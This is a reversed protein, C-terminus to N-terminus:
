LADWGLFEKHLLDFLKQNYPQYFSRLFSRTSPLMDQKKGGVNLVEQPLNQVRVGLFKLTEVQTVSLLISFYFLIFNFNFIYIFYRFLISFYFLSIFFLFLLSSIALLM